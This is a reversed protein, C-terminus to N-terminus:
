ISSNFSTVSILSPDEQGGLTAAIVDHIVDDGSSARAVLEEIPTKTLDPFFDPTWDDPMLQAASDM